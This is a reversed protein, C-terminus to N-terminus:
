RLEWGGGRIMGRDMYFGSPFMCVDMHHTHIHAYQISDDLPAGRSQMKSVHGDCGDRIGLFGDDMHACM